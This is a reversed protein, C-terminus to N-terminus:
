VGTRLRQKALPVWDGKRHKAEQILRMDKRKIQKGVHEGRTTVRKPKLTDKLSFEFYAKNIAEETTDFEDSVLIVDQGRVVRVRISYSGATLEYDCRVEAWVPGEAVLTVTMAKVSVEGALRGTGLWTGEVGRVSAIPPVVKSLPMPKDFKLARPAPVKVAVTGSDLVLWDGDAEVLSGTRKTSIPKGTTLKYVSQGDAPLEDVIFSVEVKGGALEIIQVPVQKGGPGILVASAPVKSADVPFNVLENRWTRGVYDTLTFTEDAIALASILVVVMFTFCIRLM